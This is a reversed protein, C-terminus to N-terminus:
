SDLKTNQVVIWSVLWAGMWKCPYKTLSSYCIITILVKDTKNLSVCILSHSSGLYVIDIFVKNMQEKKAMFNSYM